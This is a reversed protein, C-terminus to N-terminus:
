LLGWSVYWDHTKKINIFYRQYWVQEKGEFINNYNDQCVDKFAANYVVKRRIHGSKSM